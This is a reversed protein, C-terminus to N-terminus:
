AWLGQEKVPPKELSLAGKRRWRRGCCCHSLLPEEQQNGPVYWVSSVNRSHAFSVAIRVLTRTEAKPLMLEGGAPGHCM